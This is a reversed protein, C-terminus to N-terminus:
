GLHAWERTQCVVLLASVVPLPLAIRLVFYLGALIIGILLGVVPFFPISRGIMLPVDKKSSPLPFITLFRVATFFSM